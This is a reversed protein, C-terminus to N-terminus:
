SLRLLRRRSQRYNVTAFVLAAIAAIPLFADEM